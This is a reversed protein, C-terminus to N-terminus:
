EYLSASLMRSVSTVTTIYSVIEHPLFHMTRYIYCSQVSIVTAFYITYCQSCFYFTQLTFVIDYVCVCIYTNM